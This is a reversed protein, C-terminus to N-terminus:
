VRPKSNSQGTRALSREAKLASNAAKLGARLTSKRLSIIKDGNPLTFRRIVPPKGKVAMCIERSWSNVRRMREPCCNRVEVRLPSGYGLCFM